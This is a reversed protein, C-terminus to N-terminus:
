FVAFSSLCAFEGPGPFEVLTFAAFSQRQNRHQQLRISNIPEFLIRHISRSSRARGPWGEKVARFGNPFDEASQPLM